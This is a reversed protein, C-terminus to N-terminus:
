SIKAGAGVKSSECRLLSPPPLRIDRGTWTVRLRQSGPFSKFNIRNVHHLSVKSISFEIPTMRIFVFKLSRCHLKRKNKRNIILLIPSARQQIRTYTHTRHALEALSGLMCETTWMLSIIIPHATGISLGSWWKEKKLSLQLLHLAVWDVGCYLTQFYKNKKCKIM